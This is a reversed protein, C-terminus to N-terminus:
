KEVVEFAEIIDGTAVTVRSDLLAGFQNGAEVQNTKLKQEQLEVIHGRGVEHDRRVIKVERNKLIKGEFVQGGIVQKNKTQSFLKLVRAKGVLEETRVRPKRKAMEETMWEGLKYIIDFTQIQIGFREALDRAQSDVKINFGLVLPQDSGTAMKIDGETIAGVGDSIVKLGIEPSDLAALEKRVAELTGVVDAKVIVPIEVKDPHNEIGSEISEPTIVTSQEGLFKEATKKDAFAQFANGIAPVSSFGFIRVPSSFSASKITQGLFNEMKKVKASDSGIVLMDGTNLTGNKIILTVTTGIKPDLNAELAYGTAPVNLEGTLEELEAVILMLDLLEDVGEGTKASVNVSPIKGGYSEILINNEALSQKTREVNANPRDIKNIAVIYPIGAETISRLAELTQAKVGEEASVVLVAIDAIGAGRSRMAEFAAHGPTDLFTIRKEAGQKNKHLVEYASIHQTIGGAEKAVINTERIYDLLTSKGHDIHGFIGIVPPREQPNNATSSM